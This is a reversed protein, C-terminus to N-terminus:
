ATSVLALVEVPLRWTMQQIVSIGRLFIVLSASTSTMVAHCHYTFQIRVSFMQASDAIECPMITVNVPWIGRNLWRSHWVTVSLASTIPIISRSVINCTKEKFCQVAEDFIIPLWMANRGSVHIILLKISTDCSKYSKWKFHAFASDFSQM